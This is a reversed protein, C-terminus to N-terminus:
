LNKYTRDDRKGVFHFVIRGNEQEEFIIRHAGVRLRYMNKKGVLAKVGPLQRFDLVIQRMLILVMKKHKRSLKKLYKEIKNM